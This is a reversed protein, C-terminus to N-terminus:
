ALHDEEAARTRHAGSRGRRGVPKYLEVLIVEQTLRIYNNASQRRMLAPTLVLLQDGITGEGNAVLQSESRLQKGSKIDIMKLDSVECLDVVLRCLKIKSSFRPIFRYVTTSTQIRIALDVAPVVVKEYLANQCTADDGIFPFFNALESILSIWLNNSAKVRHDTYDATAAIATLAEAKWSQIALPESDITLKSAFIESSHKGRPPDSFRMSRGTRKLCDRETAPLGFLFIEFDFLEKHLIFFIVFRIVHEGGSDPYLALIEKFLDIGGHQFIEPPEDGNNRQWEDAFRSVENDVWDSIAHSLSEYQQSIVSDAVPAVPQMKFLDDKCHQLDRRLCENQGELGACKERLKKLEDQDQNLTKIANDLRQQKLDCAESLSLNQQHLRVNKTSLENVETILDHPNILRSILGSM